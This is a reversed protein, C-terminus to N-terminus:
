KRTLTDSGTWTLSAGSLELQGARAGMWEAALDRPHADSLQDFVKAAEAFNANLFLDGAGEFQKRTDQKMRIDSVIDGAFIEYVDVANSKGAMRVRTLRRCENRLSEPLQDIVAESAAISVGCQATLSELRAAANVTDSVVNGNLRYKDGLIGMILDGTHLGVGTGIPPLNVAARDVNMRRLERQMEVATKAADSPHGPFLAMMGDGLFQAVVGNNEQVIPGIRRFYENLFEFTEQPTLQEAITTFGRIDAFMVTMQRSISDGLDIDLISERNLFDLFEVPVFRKYANSVRTLSLHAHMRASLEDRSFPKALYDTAGAAFGARLDELRNKATLMIIPLRSASHTERLRVSVDYGSMRPMMVDLLVIDPEFGDAVAKLAAEGDSASQTTFGELSMFNELVQLNVPDDDVLLAKGGRTGAESQVPQLVIDRAIPTVSAGEPAASVVSVAMSAESPKQSTAELDFSFRAGKGPTGTEVLTGGHLEVLRRSITLGLGLGGQDRRTSADIQEFGRFILEKNDASIGPGDDSVIIRVRGEGAECDVTIRGGPAFKVANDVLNILIQQLRDEDALVNPADRSVNNEMKVGAQRAHAQMLTFVVDITTRLDLPVAAIEIQGDKLQSFDLIDNVLNTLRRGSSVILDLTGQAEASLPGNAGGIMGDALGIIGNLPTRLEHSTNALFEDKLQNVRALESSARKELELAEKQREYLLANDISIAALTMITTLIEQRAPTFVGEALTNELHLAGQVEGTGMIPMTFISKPSTRAVYRDRDLGPAAIADSLILSSKLAVVKSVIDKPYNSDSLDRLPQNPKVLSVRVDGRSTDATAALVYEDDRRLFLQGTNAGANEIAIALLRKLLTDIDTIELIAQSTKVITSLDMEAPKDVVGAQVGAEQVEPHERVLLDSKATAGWTDYARRARRLWNIQLDKDAMAEATRAACESGIGAYSWIGHDEANQVADRFQVLAAELEGKMRLEEGLLLQYQFSHNTPFKKKLRLLAKLHKRLRANRQRDSLNLADKSPRTICLGSLLHYDVFEPGLTTFGEDALLKGYLDRVVKWDGYIHTLLMETTLFSGVAAEGAMQEELVRDPRSWLTDDAAGTLREIARRYVATIDNLVEHKLRKQYRDFDNLEATLASLPKCGVWTYKLLGYYFYGVYELDVAKWSHTIGESLLDHLADYDRFHWAVVVCYTYFLRGRVQPSIDRSELLPFLNTGIRYARDVAKFAIYMVVAYNQISFIGASTLGDRLTIRFMRLSILVFLDKNTLFAPTSVIMLMEMLQESAENDMEPLSSFDFVDHRRLEVHTLALQQGIKPQLPPSLNVGLLKLGETGFALAKEYESRYTHLTVLLQYIQAKQRPSSLNELLEEFIPRATEFGSVFFTVELMERRLKTTTEPESDWDVGGFEATIATATTLYRHAVDYAALSKARTVAALVAQIVLRGLQPARLCEAGLDFQDLAAFLREDTHLDEMDNLLFSGITYHIEKREAEPTLRYAADRVMDHSFRYIEEATGDHELFGEDRAENLLAEIEAESHDSLIKLTGPTITTGFCAAYRITELAAPSLLEIRETMLLAIDADVVQRTAADMYWTWRGTDQDFHIAGEQYLAQLLRRLHFANGQAKGHLVQALDAVDSADELNMAAAVLELTDASKLPRIQITEANLGTDEFTQVLRDVKEKAGHANDRYAGVLLLHSLQATRFVDELLTISASEAWQLDDLFLIVPNAADSMTEFFAQIAIRFRQNREMPDGQASEALDGTVLRLEPLFEAIVHLNDGLSEVLRARYRELEDGGQSVKLMVFERLAELIALYPLSQVEEYKGSIILPKVTRDQFDRLKASLASKGTGSRGALLISEVGGAFTREAANMLRTVERDRGFLRNPVRFAALADQSGLAFPRIEGDVEFAAACRKLDSLLGFATQYRRDPSKELLKHVLDALQEPVDARSDTLPRPPIALHQHVLEMEDFASFPAAGTLLEYYVLGLAYLDARLDAKTEIRGSQEPAAYAIDELSRGTIDSPRGAPCSFSDAHLALTLAGTRPELFVSAPKIHGHPIRRNHLAKVAKALQAAIDLFHGLRLGGRSIARSLDDGPPRKMVVKAATGDNVFDLVHPLGQGALEQLTALRATSINAQQKSLPAASWILSVEGANGGEVTLLGHKAAANKNERIM